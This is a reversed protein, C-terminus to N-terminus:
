HKIVVRWVFGNSCSAKELLFTAEDKYTRYLATVDFTDWIACLEVKKHLLRNPSVCSDFSWEQGATKKLFDLVFIVNERAFLIFPFSQLKGFLFQDVLLNLWDCKRHSICKYIWLNHDMQRLMALFIYISTHIDRTHSHTHLWTDTEYAMGSYSM